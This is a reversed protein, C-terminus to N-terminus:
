PKGALAAELAEIRQRATHDAERLARELEKAVTIDTFTIVVGDIRNEYTRYPLIRVQFWRGDSAAAEFEKLALTELVESVDDALGDYDLDSVIDTIPRDVDSPILKIIRTTQPTFRRVKLDNDLFLTAIDTSNLLNRMDNSTRSLEELKAQMEANVSILEENLSQMEEKSTTLEENTSQLEENTSQLEENASKLEEQSTQMEERTAQLYGRTEELERELEEIRSSPVESGAAGGRRSRGRRHPTAVDEFLVLFLGRLAHPEDLPTVTLDVLQHSGNTKVRLRKRHVRERESHARQVASWLEHRLGERAMAFVNLNAKGAAPELYKGTRGHIYLIDGRENVLASPPGFEQLLLRDVLDQLSPGAARGRRSAAEPEGAETSAFSVPFDVAAPAALSGRCRYLKWRTDIPSFLEPFAGATEASGLFLLGGANLSYHFLALLKKQLDPTLYILLNRCSLLDLKTFPPDTIINHPAFVVMDRLEKAVRYTKGEKVFFRRLRESSVDAAISEPYAGLRAKAISDPDLDTAFLQIREGRRRGAELVDKLLMAISYAEEGTACAPVWARFIQSPARSALLAPLAKERLAAFAEPDRFFSTVGILLEKSLFDLEQPNEQLFELYEAMKGFQHIGMRREVRRYITNKKYAAFDRGACARLLTVIEELASRSKEEPEVAEGGPVQAGRSCAILKAPLEEARGVYDAVGADIASRPMSDFKASEPEQVLGLGGNEKIARLGLTGDSGMGSLIVGVAREGLEDALTRFFSDIPLRLGRPEAPELLKLTGRELSLDRNPPIVYVRNPEIKTGDEVQLVKMRTRRQLLEPLAGKHSPDLHQVVVFARGSDPPTHSLFQELAELGGASAGIGIVPFSIRSDSHESPAPPSRRTLTKRNGANAKREKVRYRRDEPM